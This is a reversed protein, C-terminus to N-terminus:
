ILSKLCRFRECVVDMDDGMEEKNENCISTFLEWHVDQWYSLSGDGLADAKAQDDGVKAFPVISVKETQIVCIPRSEWDIIVSVQQDKPLLNQNKGYEILLSSSGTKLGRAAMGGLLAGDIENDGLPWALLDRSPPVFGKLLVDCYISYAQDSQKLANALEIFIMGKPPSFDDDLILVAPSLGGEPLHAMGLYRINSVGLKRVLYDRLSMELPQNANVTFSALETTAGKSFLIEHDANLILLRSTNHSM